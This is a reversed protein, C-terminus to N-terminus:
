DEKPRKVYEEDGTWELLKQAVRGIMILYWQSYTLQRPEDVDLRDESDDPADQECNRRASPARLTSFSRKGKIEPFLSPQPTESQAASTESSTNVDKKCSSLMKQMAQQQREKNRRAEASANAVLQLERVVVKRSDAVAQLDKDKGQNELTLDAEITKNNSLWEIWQLATELDIRADKYLGGLRRAKGRKYYLKAIQHQQKPFKLSTADTSTCRAAKDSCTEAGGGHKVDLDVDADADTNVYVEQLALTCFQETKRFWKLALTSQALNNMVYLFLLGASQSQTDTDIEPPALKKEQQAVVLCTLYVDIAQEYREERYLQNGYKRQEEAWQKKEDWTKLYEVQAAAQQLKSEMDAAQLEETTARRTNGNPLRKQLEFHPANSTDDNSQLDALAKNLSEVVSTQTVFPSGIYTNDTDGASAAPQPADQSSSNVM